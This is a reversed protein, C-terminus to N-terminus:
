NGASFRVTGGGAAAAAEIEMNIAATDLTTGDGTAGYARVDFDAARLAVALLLVCFLSLLKRM